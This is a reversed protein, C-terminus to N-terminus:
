QAAVPSTPAFVRKEFRWGQATKVLTDEYRNVTRISAPTPERDILMLYCSGRAGDATPSIILNTNWHQIHAGGRNEHWDKAFAALKDRGVTNVFTGNPTFTEAWAVGDREGSDIAQAYRAYLQQIELYDQPTLAM